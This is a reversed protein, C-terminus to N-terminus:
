AKNRTLLKYLLEQQEINPVAKREVATAMDVIVLEDGKIGIVKKSNGNLLLEVSLVGARTAFARDFYSPSGGRQLHGLVVTKLNYGELLPQLKRKIEIAGGEEDGEAVIIISGREGKNQAKLQTALAPIDTITEPILVSEAGSAIASNLALFGSNRGMVEVLFISSQASATDRINDVAAVITNLATDYGITAETGYVDNDITAAIGVVSIHNLAQLALAGQLSGEGGIIILGDLQAEKIKLAAERRSELQLFRVSRSAGLITGGRHIINNVDAYKLNIFTGDILGEYGNKIGIPQLGYHLASKVIARIAANMGPADGGSTLLGIRKM